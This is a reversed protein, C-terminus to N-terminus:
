YNIILKGLSESSTMNEFYADNNTPAKYTGYDSLLNASQTVLEDVDTFDARTQSISFFLFIYFWVSFFNM